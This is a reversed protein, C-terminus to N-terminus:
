HFQQTASPHFRAFKLLNMTMFEVAACNRQQIILKMEFTCPGSNSLLFVINECQNTVPEAQWCDSEKFALLLVALCKEKWNGDLGMCAMVMAKWSVFSFFEPYLYTYDCTSQLLLCDITIALSFSCSSGKRFFFYPTRVTWAANKRIRTRMLRQSNQIRHHRWACSCVSSALDGCAHCRRRWNSKNKQRSPLHLTNQWLGPQMPHIRRESSQSPCMYKNIKNIFHTSTCPGAFDSLLRLPLLDLPVQRMKWSCHSCARGSGHLRVTITRRQRNCSRWRM